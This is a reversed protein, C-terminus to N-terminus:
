PEHVTLTRPDALLQQFATLQAGTLEWGGTPSNLNSDFASLAIVRAGKGDTASGIAHQYWDRVRQGAAADSGRMGWEGVAVPLGHGGIWARSALWSSQVLSVQSDVYHDIGYFDWIGPVWWDDPHRGSKADFTWSMLIPGFAVHRTGVATMRQRIRQQMARWAPSGGPDDPANVGGGGEPEHHLTLWVPGGTADLARLLEDIQGDFAGSGMDQWSGGPKLSVWPLRDHALDDRVTRLLGTTRQDWRWFTRHLALPQGSPAEHRPV